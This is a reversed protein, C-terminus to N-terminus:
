ESEETICDDDDCNEPIKPYLSELTQGFRFDSLASPDNIKPPLPVNGPPLIMVHLDNKECFVSIRQAQWKVCSALYFDNQELMQAFKRADLLSEFALVASQSSETVSVTYVGETSTGEDFILVWASSMNLNMWDHMYSDSYDMQMSIHSPHKRAAYRMWKSDIAIICLSLLTQLRM